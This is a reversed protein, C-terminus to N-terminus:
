TLDIPPAAARARLLETHADWADALAQAEPSPTSAISDISHMLERIQARLNAAAGDASVPHTHDVTVTPSWPRPEAPDGRGAERARARDLAAAIRYRELRRSAH